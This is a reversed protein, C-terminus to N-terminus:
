VESPDHERHSQVTHRHHAIPMGNRRWYSRIAGWAEEATDVTQVLDLDGPSIVGQESLYKVDIVRSWLERGVLIVPLQSKKSTQVLTLTEFLEDFTGFGGPFAVMAKARMLFHMKRIAFYHFLFSLEPTVFPNPEQEHPLTINLGISKGGAEWAGRNAAEMIGPGGGTVMVFHRRGKGQSAKTVIYSFRRAEDYYRSLKQLRKAADLETRLRADRPLRKLAAGLKAIQAEAEDPPQIRASGFVIITSEIKNEILVMEPKLLELQLRMPRLEERALFDIDQYAKRYTRSARLDDLMKRRQQPTIKVAKMDDM